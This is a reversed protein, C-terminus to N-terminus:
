HAILQKVSSSKKKRDLEQNLFKYLLFLVKQAQFKTVSSLKQFSGINNTSWPHYVGGTDDGEQYMM